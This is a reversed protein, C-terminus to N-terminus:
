ATLSRRYMSSGEDSLVRGGWRDRKVHLGPSRSATAMPLLQRAQEAIDLPVKLCGPLLVRAAVGASIPVLCALGGGDRRGFLSQLQLDGM